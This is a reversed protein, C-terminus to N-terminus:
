IRCVYSWVSYKLPLSCCMQLIIIQMYTHSWKINETSKGTCEKSPECFAELFVIKCVRLQAQKSEKPLNFFASLLLPTDAPLEYFPKHKFGAEIQLRSEQSCLSSSDRAGHWLLPKAIDAALFPSSSLFILFYSTM